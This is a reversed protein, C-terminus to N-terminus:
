SKTADLSFQQIRQLLTAGVLAFLHLFVVLNSTQIFVVNMVVLHAMRGKERHPKKMTARESRSLCSVPIDILM